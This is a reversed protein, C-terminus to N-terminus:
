EVFSFFCANPGATKFNHVKALEMFDLIAGMEISIFHPPVNKKEIKECHDYHFSDTSFHAFCYKRNFDCSDQELNRTSTM